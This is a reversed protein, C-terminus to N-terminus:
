WKHIFEVILRFWNLNRTWVIKQDWTCLESETTALKYCWSGGWQTTDLWTQWKGSGASGDMRGHSSRNVVVTASRVKALSVCCFWVLSPIRQVSCTNNVCRGPTFQVLDFIYCTEMVFNQIRCTEVLFVM